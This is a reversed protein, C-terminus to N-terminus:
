VAEQRLEECINGRKVKRWTYVTSFIMVLIFAAAGVAYLGIPIIKNTYISYKLYSYSKYNALTGMLGGIVFGRLTYSLNEAFIMRLFTHKSCGAAKIMAYERTRLRVATTITNAINALSILVILILFCMLCVNLIRMMNAEYQDTQPPMGIDFSEDYENRLELMLELARESDITKLYAYDQINPTIFLDENYASLPLVFGWDGAWAWYPYDEAKVTEGIEFSLKEMSEEVPVKFKKFDDDSQATRGDGVLYIMMSPDEPDAVVLYWVQTYFTMSISGVYAVGNSNIMADFSNKLLRFVCSVGVCGILLGAPIASVALFGAELFVSVIVQFRTAGISKFLGFQRTRETLSISFSNYILAISAIAVVVMLVACMGFLMYRIDSVGQGFYRLLTENIKSQHDGFNKAIFDSTDDISKTKLYIDSITTQVGTTLM